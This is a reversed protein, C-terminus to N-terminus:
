FITVLARGVARYAPVITPALLKGPLSLLRFHLNSILNPASPQSDCGLDEKWGEGEKGELWGEPRKAAELNM